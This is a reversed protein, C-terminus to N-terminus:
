EWFPMGGDAIIDSTMVDGCGADGNLSTFLPLSVAALRFSDAAVLHANMALTYIAAAATPHTLSHRKGEDLTHANLPSHSGM